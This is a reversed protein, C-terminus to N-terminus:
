YGMDETGPVSPASQCRCGPHSADPPMPDNLTFTQGHLPRCTDCVWNDLMTFWQWQNIGAARMMEETVTSSLATAETVGILMARTEGFLPELDKVLDDVGLGTNWWANIKDAVDQRTDEAIKTIDKGTKHHHLVWRPDYTVKYGYAEYWGKDVSALGDISDLFVRDLEDNFESEWEDWFDSTDQKRLRRLSPYLRIWGRRFVRLVAAAIDKEVKQRARRFAVQRDFNRPKRAM